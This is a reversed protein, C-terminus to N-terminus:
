IYIEDWLYGSCLSLIDEKNIRNTSINVLKLLCKDLCLIFVGYRNYSFLFVPFNATVFFLIIKAM